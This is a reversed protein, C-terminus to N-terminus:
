ADAGGDRRSRAEFAVVEDLPYRVANGIRLYAPGSNAGRMRQLTRCSINWRRALAQESLHRPGDISRTNQFYNTM